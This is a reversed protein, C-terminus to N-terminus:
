PENVRRGRHALMRELLPRAVAMVRHAVQAEMEREPVLAERKADWVYVARIRM